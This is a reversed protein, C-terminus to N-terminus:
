QSKKSPFFLIILLFIFFIALAMLEPSLSFSFSFIPFFIFVAVLTVAIIVIIVMGIAAPKSKSIKELFQEQWVMLPIFVLVLIVLLVLLSFSLFQSLPKSTDIGVLIPSSAVLMGACFSIVANVAVAERKEGFIRSRRLLGYFIATSLILPVVFKFFGISELWQITLSFADTM